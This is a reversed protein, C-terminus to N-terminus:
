FINTINLIERVMYGYTYNYNKINFEDFDKIPSKEDLYSRHNILLHISDLSKWDAWYTKFLNHVLMHTGLKEKVAHALYRHKLLITAPM